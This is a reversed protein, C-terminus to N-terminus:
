AAPSPVPPRWGGPRRAAGGSCERRTTVDGAILRGPAEGPVPLTRALYSFLRLYGWKGGMIVNVFSVSPFLEVGRCRGKAEKADWGASRRTKPVWLTANLLVTGGVATLEQATLLQNDNNYTYEWTLGAAHVASVM